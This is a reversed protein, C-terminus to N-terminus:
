KRGDRSIMVSHLHTRGKGAARSPSMTPASRPLATALGASRVCLLAAALGSSRVCVCVKGAYSATSSLLTSVARRYSVVPILKRASTESNREFYPVLVPTLQQWVTPIDSSPVTLVARHFGVMRCYSGHSWCVVSHFPPGPEEHCPILVSGGPFSM